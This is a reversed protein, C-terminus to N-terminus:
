RASFPPLDLLLTDHPAWETLARSRISVRNWEISNVDRAVEGPRYQPVAISWDWAAKVRAPYRSPDGYYANTKDFLVSLARDVQWLWPSANREEATIPYPVSKQPLRIKRGLVVLFTERPKPGHSELADRTLLPVNVAVASCPPPNVGSWHVSDLEAMAQWLWALEKPSLMSGGRSAAAMRDMYPTAPAIIFDRFARSSRLAKELAPSSYTELAAREANETKENTECHKFQPDSKAPPADLELVSQAGGTMGSFLLLAGAAAIPKVNM